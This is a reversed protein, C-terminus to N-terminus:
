APNTRRRTKRPMQTEPDYYTRSLFAETISCNKHVHQGNVGRKDLDKDVEEPPGEYVLLRVVRVNNM